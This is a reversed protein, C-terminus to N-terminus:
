VPLKNSGGVTGQACNQIGGEIYTTCHAFLRLARPHDYLWPLNCTFLPIVDESQRNLCCCKGHM